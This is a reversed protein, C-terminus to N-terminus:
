KQQYHKHKPFIIPHLNLKVIQLHSLPNVHLFNVQQIVAVILPLTALRM